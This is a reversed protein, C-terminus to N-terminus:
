FQRLFSLKNAHLLRIDTINYKLMALRTLGFGFAFGCYKKPNLGCATIVNPHMLGSGVIEIWCTRGCVSCGTTCFPCSIDIEICPEVFPFYGPRIRLKMDKTNFFSSLFTKMTAILHAISAKKDIYLGELQMFQFDHSADTAENRYARGPSIIAIPPQQEKLIRIGVSSTHTRMLKEPLTLWFTDQMDRAPHEPPINLAEFNYFEHELEPGDVVAFGMSLFINEAEERVLTHPHLSGHLEHPEYATVDFNKTKRHEAALLQGSVLKEREKFAQQLEKKLTTILPGITRKQELDLEKLTNVIVSLLGHRSLHKIRFAELEAATKAQMLEIVSDKQYNEIQKKLMSM